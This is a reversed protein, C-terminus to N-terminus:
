IAFPRYPVYHPMQGRAVQGARQTAHALIEAGCQTTRRHRLATPVVTPRRDRRERPTDSVDAKIEDMPSFGFIETKLSRLFELIM